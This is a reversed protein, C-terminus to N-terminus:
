IAKAFQLYDLNLRAVELRVHEPTRSNDLVDDAIKLRQGRDAQSALAKEAQVRSSGDRAMLRHIQTEPEVDVVLIRDIGPYGGREVLM